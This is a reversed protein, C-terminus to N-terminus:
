QARILPPMQIGTCTCPRGGAGIGCGFLALSALLSQGVHQAQFVAPRIRAFAQKGRQAARQVVPIRARERAQRLLHRGRDKGAIVAAVFVCPFGVVVDVAGHEVGQRRVDQARLVFGIEFHQDHRRGIRALPLARLFLHAAHAPRFIGEMVGDHVHATVFVGCQRHHDVAVKPKAERWSM